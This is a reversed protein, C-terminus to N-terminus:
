LNAKNNLCHIVSTLLADFVGLTQGMPAELLGVFQARLEDKSPLESLTKVEEANYLKGDMYGTLVNM